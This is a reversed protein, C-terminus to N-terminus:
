ETEREGRFLREMQAVAAPDPSTSRFVVEGPASEPRLLDAEALLRATQRATGDSGDILETGPPLVRRLAGSAFPFHTCGLVVAGVPRALWPALRVRLVAELAPSDTEGREVFEVLEPCPLSVVTCRSGMREALAAYKAERLTTETALVLVTRGPHRDAAPKLAPEIGVVPRDPYTRRLAEIAASTATNCAIVAAKFPESEDLARLNELTLRRIEATPRPGYPAHATDGLYVFREASLRRVLAKLVSIGGVGSDFVAIPRNRRDM